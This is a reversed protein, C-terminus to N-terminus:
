QGREVKAKFNELIAQWGAQQLDRSANADPAFTEVVETGGTVRIFEISVERGDELSYKIREFPAIEIYRGSFDFGVSGDKAAMHYRFQGGVRLDNVATPCSWDPSAFNWQTISHPDTFVHWARSPDGTVTVRVTIPSVDHM